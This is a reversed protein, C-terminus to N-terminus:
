QHSSVKERLLLEADKLNSCACEYRYKSLEIVSGDM